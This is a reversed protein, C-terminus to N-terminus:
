NKTGSYTIESFEVNCGLGVPSQTYFGIKVNDPKHYIFERIVMWQKGDSSFLYNFVNGSKTVRLYVDKSNPIFYADDTVKDKVVSIGLTPRNDIYQLLVKSWNERDSYILIAGGDHLKTFVPKVKASFDFNKDPTFLFKPANHREYRGNAPNHLDTEKGASMSISNDSLIKIESPGDLLITRHPIAKISVSEKLVASQGMGDIFSLCFFFIFLYIKM